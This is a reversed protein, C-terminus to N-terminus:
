TITQSSLEFFIAGRPSDTIYSSNGRKQNRCHSASLANVNASSTPNYVNSSDDRAQATAELVEKAEGKSTHFEM